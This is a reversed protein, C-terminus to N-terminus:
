NCLLNIQEVQHQSTQYSHGLILYQTTNWLILCPSLIAMDWGVYGKSGILFGSAGQKGHGGFGIETDLSLTRIRDGFVQEAEEYSQWIIYGKNGISFGFAIKAGYGPFYYKAKENWTNTISDCEMHTGIISGM